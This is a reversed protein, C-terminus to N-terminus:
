MTIHITTGYPGCLPSAAAGSAAGSPADGVQFAWGRRRARRLEPPPDHSKPSIM